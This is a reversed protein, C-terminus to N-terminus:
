AESELILESLKQLEKIKAALKPRRQMCRDVHGVYDAASDYGEESTLIRPPITRPVILLGLVAWKAVALAEAPNETLVDCLAQAHDMGEPVPPTIDTEAWTGTWDCSTCEAYSDEDYEVDGHFDCGADTIEFMTQAAVRLRDDEGCKPCARNELCNDNM